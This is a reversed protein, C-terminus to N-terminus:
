SVRMICGGYIPHGSFIIGRKGKTGPPPFHEIIVGDKVAMIESGKPGVLDMGKHINFQGVPGETVPSIRFGFKDSVEYDKMPPVFETPISYKDAYKYMTIFRMEPLLLEYNSTDHIYVTEVKTCSILIIPLLLLILFRM